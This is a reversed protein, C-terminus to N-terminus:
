KAKKKKKTTRRKTKADVIFQSQKKIQYRDPVDPDDDATDDDEVFHVDIHNIHKKFQIHFIM